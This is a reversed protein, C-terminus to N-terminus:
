NWYDPNILPQQWPTQAFAILRSSTVLRVELLSAIEGIFDVLHDVSLRSSIHCRAAPNEEPGVHNLIGVARFDHPGQVGFGMKPLSTETL